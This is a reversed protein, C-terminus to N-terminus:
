QLQTDRVGEQHIMDFTQTLSFLVSSASNPGVRVWVYIITSCLLSSCSDYHSALVIWLASFLIKILERNRSTRHAYVRAIDKLLQFHLIVSIGKVHSM